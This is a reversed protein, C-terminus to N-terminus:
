LFMNCASNETWLIRSPRFRYCCYTIPSFVNCGLVSCRSELTNRLQPLHQSVYHGFVTYQTLLTLTLALMTVTQNLSATTWVRFFYPLPLFGVLGGNWTPNSGGVTRFM